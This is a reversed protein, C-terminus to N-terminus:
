GPGGGGAGGPARRRCDRPPAGDSVVGDAVGSALRHLPLTAADDGRGTAPTAECSRAPGHRRCGGSPEDPVREAWAPSPPSCASSPRPTPSSGDAILAPVDALAIREVTMHRSRRRGAPRPGGRHPRHGPLSAGLEDSFGPSNHFTSRLLMSRGAECASRRPWSAARRDVGAGRRRRRAHRRPDRAARRRAAARYQRVLVVSATTPSRCSPWRARTASSTASSASATPRRSPASPWPSSAPGRARDREDVQRFGGDTVRTSPRRAASVDLSTRTAARPGPRARGGVFERFLPHPGTPAARSSPTPRPASGSRTTPSSSSSSWATTPRPARASAPRGGRLPQPLPPNFEYRHRHRESVVSTATSGRGGALRARARRRLRRPAHHRGQRHRRAPEDM